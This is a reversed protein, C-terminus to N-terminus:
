GRELAALVDAQHERFHTAVSRVIELVTRQQGLVRGRNHWEHEEVHELAQLLADHGLDYRRAVTEPTAGRAMWRTLITNMRDALWLPANGFGKSRRAAEVSRAAFGIGVALHSALEGVTWSQGPGRRSWDEQTLSALLEKYVRRIAELEADIAHRDVAARAADGGWRPAGLGRERSLPTVRVPGTRTVPM